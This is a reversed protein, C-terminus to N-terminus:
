MKKRKWNKQLSLTEFQFEAQGDWRLLVCRLLHKEVNILRCIVSMERKYETHAFLYLRARFSAEFLPIM